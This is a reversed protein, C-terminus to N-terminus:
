HGEGTDEQGKLTAAWTGGAWHRRPAGPRKRPVTGVEKARGSPELGPALCYPWQWCGWSHWVNKGHWFCAPLRGKLMAPFVGDTGM